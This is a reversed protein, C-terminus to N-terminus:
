NGKNDDYPHKIAIMKKQKLWIIYILPSDNAGKYLFTNNYLKWQALEDKLIKQLM